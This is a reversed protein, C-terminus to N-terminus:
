METPKTHVPEKPHEKEKKKKKKKKMGGEANHTEITSQKTHTLCFPLLPAV